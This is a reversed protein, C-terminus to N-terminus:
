AGREPRKPPWAGRDRLAAQLAERVLTPRTVGEARAVDDLASSLAASLRVRVSLCPPVPPSETLPM